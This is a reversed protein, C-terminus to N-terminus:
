DFIMDGDKVTLGAVIKNNFLIKLKISSSMSIGIAQNKKVGDGVKVGVTDLLEYVSVLGKGHAIQISKLAGDGEVKTVKGDMCSKVVVSGLGDVMFVGSGVEITYSNEFPMAMESVSSLVELEGEGESTVYKLKGLDSINPSWTSTINKVEASINLSSLSVGMVGLSLVCMFVFSFMKLKKYSFTIQNQKASVSGSEVKEISKYM